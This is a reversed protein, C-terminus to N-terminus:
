DERQESTASGIEGVKPSENEPMAFVDKVQQFGAKVSSALHRLNIIHEERVDQVGDVGLLAIVADEDVGKTAFYGIVQAWVEAIGLEQIQEKHITLATEYVPEVVHRPLGKLIANRHMKSANREVEMWYEDQSIAYSTGDRKKRFRSVIRQRVVMRVNVLDFFFGEVLAEGNDQGSPYVRAGDACYKWEAAIWLALQIGPGRVWTLPCHCNKRAAWPKKKCDDTHNKYPISYCGTAAAEPHVRLGAICREIVEGVDRTKGHAISALSDYTVRLAAMAPDSASAIVLPKEEKVLSPADTEGTLDDLPKTDKALTRVTDTM